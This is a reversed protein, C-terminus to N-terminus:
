FQDVWRVRGGGVGRRGLQERGVTDRDRLFAGPSAPMTAPATGATMHLQQRAGGHQPETRCSGDVSNPDGFLDGARTGASQMGAIAGAPVTMLPILSFRTPKPFCSNAERCTLAFLSCDVLRRTGHFPRVKLQFSCDSAYTGGVSEIRVHQYKNGRDENVSGASRRCCSVNRYAIVREYKHVVYM